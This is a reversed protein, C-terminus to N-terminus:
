FIFLCPYVDFPGKTMVDFAAKTRRNHENNFKCHFVFSVFSIPYDNVQRIYISEVDGAM